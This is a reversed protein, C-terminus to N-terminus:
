FFFAFTVFDISAQHESRLGTHELRKETYSGRSIFDSIFCIPLQCPVPIVGTSDIASFFDRETKRPIIQM